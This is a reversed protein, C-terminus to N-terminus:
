RQDLAKWSLLCALYLQAAGDDRVAPWGAIAAAALQVFNAAQSRTLPRAMDYDARHREDQLTTFASAIERLGAPIPTAWNFWRPLNGGSFSRSAQAMAGHVFGRGLILRAPKHRTGGGLLSRCARDVLFHFLAYYASSVARRLSAQRPRKPERRVLHRAQELLQQHM